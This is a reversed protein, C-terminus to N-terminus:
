PRPWPRSAGSTSSCASPRTPSPSSRGGVRASSPRFLLAVTAAVDAEFEAVAKDFGTEYFRYYGWQGDSYRDAPYIERNVLPVLESLAFGGPLYPVCVAAVARVRAPHHAALGFVVPSGWDHGVWVAPAGGLADHLEVMDGVVERLAYASLDDPASSDGYGRMDPAVCRWGLRAFHALQGRWVLGREPWGHLFFLLPGDRPGEEIWSM